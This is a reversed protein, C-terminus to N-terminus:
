QVTHIRYYFVADEDTKGIWAFWTEDLHSKIDEIKIKAHGDEMNSM